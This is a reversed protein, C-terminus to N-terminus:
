DHCHVTESRSLQLSPSLYPIDLNLGRLILLIGVLAMLAPFLKRALARFELGAMSGFVVLAWMAPLTGLGFVAMFSAGDGPTGTALAGAMAMYVMGCPLLGNLLGFAYSSGPRGRFLLNSMQSRVSAMMREFPGSLWTIRTFASPLILSALVVIGLAVSIKQQWGFWAFSRGVLGFVLGLGAYTTVRGLNYLLANGLASVKERGGEGKRGTHMMLALPGCMGVCHLSSVLGLILPIFM